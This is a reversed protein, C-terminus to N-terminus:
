PEMAPPDAVPERANSAPSPAPVPMFLYHIDAGTDHIMVVGSGDRLFITEGAAVPITIALSIAIETIAQGGDITAATAEAQAFDPVDRWGLAPVLCAGDEDFATLCTGVFELM